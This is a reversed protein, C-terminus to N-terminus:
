IPNRCLLATIKAHIRVWEAMNSGQRRCLVSIIRARCLFMIFVMAFSMPQVGSRNIKMSLLVVPEALCERAYTAEEKGNLHDGSVKVGKGGQSWRNLLLIMELEDFFRLGEESYFGM